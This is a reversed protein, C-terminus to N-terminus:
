DHNERMFDIVTTIAWTLGMLAGLADVWIMFWDHREANIFMYMVFGAVAAMKATYILALKWSKSM